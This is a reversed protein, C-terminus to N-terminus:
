RHHNDEPGDAAWDGIGSRRGVPSLPGLHTLKDPNVISRVTQVTEDAIDLSIVNILRGQPDLFKAGPQGNITVLEARIGLREGQRFLTGLLKAVNERGYIPRNVGTGKTGGDGYFAADAALLEVLGDMDRGQCAAFFREALRDRQERSAEFRPKDDHVRRRARSALQRCSAESKDVVAAIEGYDYGFVDHLLFAARELPTLTELVVLFAMTLSDATEAAAAVDPAEDDLLPEPLWPGFYSERRVRASRLEDIALRTTITAVFAKRSRIREDGAQALRVFADQVVDEAESVSGLMRYAIAFAYPRLDRYVQDLDSRV